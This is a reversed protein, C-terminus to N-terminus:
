DEYDYYIGITKHILKNYFSKLHQGKIVFWADVQFKFYGNKVRWRALKFFIKNIFILKYIKKLYNKIPNCTSENKITTKIYPDTYPFYYFYFYKVLNRYSKKIWPAKFKRLTHKSWEELDKPEKMGSQIAKEYLPTSPYPTYYFLRYGINPDIDRCKLIMEMTPFIDQSSVGPFCIMTSLFSKIGIKKMKKVYEFTQSVTAKKEIINLVEDSGSEAGIYLQKCGSEKILKLTEDDFHKLLLGVHAGADWAIRYSKNILKECFEKVRKPSVFFNDDDFTIANIKYRDVLYDIEQLVFDINRFFTKRKYITAVACFGCNFPCGLSTIMGIARDGWPMEYIYKDIDIIDYSLKINELIPLLGRDPNHIFDSGDKFSVGKVNFLTKKDSFAHLLERFTEEGQGRVVIDVLPHKLTQGPLCSPHWGGWVIPVSPFNLKLQQTIKLGNSIQIGTFSSIGFCLIETNLEEIFKQMNSVLREDVIRIKFDDNKLYSYLYLLSFPIRGAMQKGYWPRPFFLIVEQM